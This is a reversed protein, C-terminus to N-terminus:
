KFSNEYASVVTDIDGYAKVSGHELWLGKNCFRKILENDHSALVMIHSRRILNEIRQQAKDAFSADGAGVAEDLLLIESEIATSIAFALRVRMGSSYTKIPISLFKGLDTFAEIDPILQAIEKRSLGMLLGRIYINEYGTAESQMGLSIDLLAAVSGKITLEGASPLYIGALVRLLTSKGAGNHGILALKDGSQLHVSLSKLAEIVVTNADSAILGGTSIKLLSQKFSRTSLGFVPYDLSLNELIIEAM